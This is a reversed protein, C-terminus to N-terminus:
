HLISKVSSSCFVGYENWRTQKKQRPSYPVGIFCCMTSSITISFMTTAIFLATEYFVHRPLVVWFILAGLPSSAGWAPVQLGKRLDLRVQHTFFRVRPRAKKWLAESERNEVAMAGVEAVAQTGSHAGTLLLATSAASADLNPTPTQAPSCSLGRGEAAYLAVSTGHPETGADAYNGDERHLPSVSRVIESRNSAPVGHDEALVGVGPCRPNNPESSRLAKCGSSSPRGCDEDGNGSAGDKAGAGDPSPTPLATSPKPSPSATAVQDCTRYLRLCRYLLRLCSVGMTEAGWGALRVNEPRFAAPMAYPYPEDSSDMGMAM